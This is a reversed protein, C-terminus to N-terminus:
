PKIRFIFCDIKISINLISISKLAAAAFPLKFFETVNFYRFLKQFDSSHWKAVPPLSFSILKLLKIKVVILSVINYTGITM